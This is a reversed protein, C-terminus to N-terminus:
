AATAAQAVASGAEAVVPKVKSRNVQTYEKDTDNKDKRKTIPAQFRVGSIGAILDNLSSAAPAGIDKAFAKFYGLSQAIDGTLFMTERHMKGILDAENGTFEADHVRIVDVCKLPIIIAPKANDGEGVAALRPLNEPDTSGEWIFDGKPFSFGRLEAVDDMNLGALEGLTVFGDEVKVKTNEDAM